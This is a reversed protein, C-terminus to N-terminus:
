GRRAMRLSGPWGSVLHELVGGPQALMTPHSVLLSPDPDLRVVGPEDRVHGPVDPSEHPLPTERSPELEPRIRQPEVWVARREPAASTLEDRFPAIDEGDVEARADCLARQPEIVEVAAEPEDPADSLVGCFVQRRDAEFGM